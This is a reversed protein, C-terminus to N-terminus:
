LIHTNTEDTDEGHQWAWEEFICYAYILLAGCFQFLGALAAFARFTESKAREIVKSQM